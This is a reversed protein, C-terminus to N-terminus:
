AFNSDEFENDVLAQLIKCEEEVKNSQAFVEVKFMNSSEM